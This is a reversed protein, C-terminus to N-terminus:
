QGFREQPLIITFTSGTGPTSDAEITGKHNEVIRRCLALGIGTGEFEKRSHLRQFIKFLQGTHAPDFGIGNDAIVIRYWNVKTHLDKSAAEAFSLPECRVTIVPPVGTRTYKLANSILNGFLQSMQLPICDIVPLPGVDISAQKQAIVLEFDGITESFIKGLDTAVLKQEAKSLESYTLVDRILSQMRSTAKTIKDFYGAARGDLRGLQDQLMLSYTMVKRVPEQLDHSAIYAFQALEANSRQLEATRDAVVEEIRHRAIVQPTVDLTIAIVGAIEGGPDRYAQYVFNQYVTEMIGNRILAVPHETTEFTEGTNYVNALLAELGQGRADPIAEFVPRNMVTEYPKGWLEVIKENAVEIVHDPGTLLCMAVPAKLILNRFNAESAALDDLMQEIKRRSQVEETVENAVVIIGTVAGNEDRYAENIFNYFGQRLAGEHQLYVEAENGYYTKGTTYVDKMIQPYPQGEMEPLAQILPKGVVSQDKGWLTLFKDNIIEVVMDMGRFLAMAVPSQLILNRINYESATIKQLARVKETTETCVVLVGKIEGTDIRIPSYGFTWYVDEIKGNRYIPVLLDENWTAKGMNRVQHIQPYIIHWIEPWCDVAKQGLARPHKGENGLSPRYADNYFQIMDDGWWLFMPFRSQLIMALTNRLSEPWHVPDGISTSTWDFARTLSAMEGDGELFYLPQDSIM